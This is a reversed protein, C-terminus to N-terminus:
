QGHPYLGPCVFPCPVLHRRPNYAAFLTIYLVDPIMLYILYLHFPDRRIRRNQLISVLVLASFVACVISVVTAITWMTTVSNDDNTESPLLVATRLWRRPTEFRKTTADDDNGPLTSWRGSNSHDGNDSSSRSRDTICSRRRSSQDDWNDSMNM